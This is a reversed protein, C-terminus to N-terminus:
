LNNMLKITKGGYLRIPVTIFVALNIALIRIELDDYTIDQPILIVTWNILSM